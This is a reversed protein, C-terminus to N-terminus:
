VLGGSVEKFFSGLNEKTVEVVLRFMTSMEIDAYMMQGNKQVQAWRSDDQRQVVSLSLSIVYNVDAEPMAAVVRSVPELAALLWQDQALPAESSSLSSVAGGLSAIAPSLKRALHFQNLASLKGIRYTNGNVEIETM